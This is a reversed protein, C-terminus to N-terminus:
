PKRKQLAGHQSLVMWMEQQLSNEQSKQKSLFFYERLGLNSFRWNLSKLARIM